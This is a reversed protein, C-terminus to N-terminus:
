ETRKIIHYGFPSLQANYATMGLEGVKLKFSVEGFAPAMDKRPFDGERKPAGDNNMPYSAAGTKDDSYAAKLKAWDEGAKLKAMIEKALKEAQAATRKIQTMGDSKVAVLIHDVRVYDPEVVMAATPEVGDSGNGGGDCGAMAAALCGFLTWPRM